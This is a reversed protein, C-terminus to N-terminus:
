NVFLPKENAMARTRDLNARGNPCKRHMDFGALTGWLCPMRPCRVANAERMNKLFNCCRQM